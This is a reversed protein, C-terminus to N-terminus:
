SYTGDYVGNIFLNCEKQRRKKLTAGYTGGSAKGIWWSTCLSNSNGYINYANIFGDINGCNYKLSLLADIQHQELSIGASALEMTISATKENLVLGFIQDVLDKPIPQNCYNYYGNSTTLPYGMQAFKDYNWTLTIGPGVTPVDSPNCYVIYNNGSVPGTGELGILMQIIDSTSSTPRPNDVSVYKKPDVASSNSAGTRVEFHLAVRNNKGTSGMKGIVQGQKVGEGARVTISGKALFAYVTHIDNAHVIKVYNGYGSGCEYDGEDCIDVVEVVTGNSAAIINTQGSSSSAGIDIGYNKTYNNTVSDLSTGFDRIISSFEPEDSAFAKGGDISTSVSGIPWWYNIGIAPKFNINEESYGTQMYLIEKIRDVIRTRAKIVEDKNAEKEDSSVDWMYEKNTKKLVKAFYYQLHPKNDFYEGEILFKWFYEEKVSQADDVVNIGYAFGEGTATNNCLEKANSKFGFFSGLEQAFKEWIGVLDQSVVASCVEKGDKMTPTGRDCVLISETKVKEEGNEDTYTVERSEYKGDKYGICTSEYGVMSKILLKLTDKEQAFYSAMGNDNDPDYLDINDSDYNYPSKDTNNIDKYNAGDDNFMDLTLEFFVTQIIIDDRINLGKREYKALIKYLRTYFKRQTELIEETCNEVDKSNGSCNSSWYGLNEKAFIDFDFDKYKFNAAKVEVGFFSVLFISIILIVKKLAINISEKELM